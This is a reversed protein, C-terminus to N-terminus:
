KNGCIENKLYNLISFPDKVNIGCLYNFSEDYAFVNHCYSEDDNQIINNEELKEDIFDLNLNVVYDNPEYISLYKKPMAFGEYRENDRKFIFIVWDKYEINKNLISKNKYIPLKEANDILRRVVESKNKIGFSNIKELQDKTIRLRLSFENKQRM